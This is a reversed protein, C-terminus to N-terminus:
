NIKLLKLTVRQRKDFVEIFYAGGTWGGGITLTSNPQVSSRIEVPRGLVDIARLTLPGEGGSIRLTFQTSSPNPSATLTLKDGVEASVEPSLVATKVVTTSNNITVTSTSRAIVVNVPQKLVVSFKETPEKIADKIIVVTIYKNKTGAGFTVTGNAQATYDGPAIATGNKTDYNVTVIKGSIVSLSLRIVAQGLSENITTDAIAITPPADDDKIVGIGTGKLITANTPSSLIV